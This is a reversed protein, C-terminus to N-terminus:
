ARIRYLYMDKDNWLVKKELTLGNKNAVRQSRVNGIDIISILSTVLNSEFAYDIFRKAAETAYGNGWHRKLIHYGVELEGKGEITQTLLGCHGILQNSHKDILAQLGLKGAAYRNLQWDLWTKSSTEPTLTHFLPMFETTEKEKFFEIWPEEDDRTLFRTRLRDTELGDAYIYNTQGSEV